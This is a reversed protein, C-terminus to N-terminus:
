AAKRSRRARRKLLLLPTAGAFVVLSPPAPAYDMHVSDIFATGSGVGLFEISNSGSTLSQTYLSYSNWASSSTPTIMGNTPNYGTQSVNGSNVAATLVQGNVEVEIPLSSGSGQEAVFSIHYIGTRPATFTESMNSGNQIFAAQDGDSGGSGANSLGIASGNHAIGASGSFNWGIGPVSNLNAASVSLGSTASDSGALYGGGPLAGHTTGAEIQAPLEFSGDTLVKGTDTGSLYTYTVSVSGATSTVGFSGLSASKPTTFTSADTLKVSMGLNGSGVFGALGPSQVNLLTTTQSNGAVSANGPSYTLTGKGGTTGSFSQSSTQPNIAAPTIAGTFLGGNSSLVLSDNFGITGTYTNTGGPVQIVASQTIGGSYSFTVGILDAATGINLQTLGTLTAPGSSGGRSTVSFQGATLAQSATTTNVTYQAQASQQSAASVALGSVLLSKTGILRRPKEEEVSNFTSSM